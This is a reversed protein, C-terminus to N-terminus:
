KDAGKGPYNRKSKGTGNKVRCYKDFECLCNQLDQFHLENFLKNDPLAEWVDDIASAYNAATIKKGWVWSLGRLSGPGPASFSYWDDAKALVHGKTNKLDAIVQAALFSGFGEIGMVLEHWHHCTDAGAAVTYFQKHAKQLIEICYDLKSMKRGHTTILYAGSWVQEDHMMMADLIGRMDDFNALKVAKRIRSLTEPRNFVRAVCMSFEYHSGMFRTTYNERIWRTVRDDERRVNCFYTTQFVPDDSWPKKKGAEKKVRVKEREQIWYALEDILPMV